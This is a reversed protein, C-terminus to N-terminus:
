SFTTIQAPCSCPLTHEYSPKMVRSQLIQDIIYKQDDSVAVLIIDGTLESSRDFYDCNFLTACAKGTEKNRSYIGKITVGKSLFFAGLSKAVRGSGIISINPLTHKDM